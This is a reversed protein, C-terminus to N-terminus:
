KKKKGSALWDQLNKALVVVDRRQMIHERIAPPTKLQVMAKHVREWLRDKKAKENTLYLEGVLDSLKQLMITDLNNYYDSIVKKQHQSYDSKAM